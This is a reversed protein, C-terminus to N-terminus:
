PRRGSPAIPTGAPYPTGSSSVTGPSRTLLADVQERALFGTEAGVGTFAWRVTGTGDIVVFRPFTEVGYAPAAAAGDYVPVSLKLRNRDKVGAAPDGFVALPVVTLQPGYRKQLADAVALSLDTTERGPMFFVLVVPKGRADGLRFGGARFDPAPQGVAPPTKGEPPRAPPAPPTVVPAPPAAPIAEGRRGADLQRRVALVAGRYPTGPDNEALYEDLNRLRVKFPEPGLRAADRLLPALDAAAAHAVEIEQRYRDYTRGGTRDRDRLEYKVEVRVAPAPAIGDRQCIVRHVRRATRDQTSVWVEDVRQWSTQGGRPTEWDAPQQVMLLHECQEGNIFDSGKAHWTEAPRSPDTSAATWSGAAGPRPPFMGFEFPAFADLPPAPLTRAPTDAAFRLPVPGPPALLHVTGDEHVRVLDLRAAPPAPPRASSVGTVVPVAGSVATDDVRRLLTLVAADAWTERRDLVFVRVELAHARRFRTGPRDVAETVTGTYTLEDGRQLKPGAGPPAAPLLLTLSLLGAPSM